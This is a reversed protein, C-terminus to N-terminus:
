APPRGAFRAPCAPPPDPDRYWIMVVPPTRADRARCEWPGASAPCWARLIDMSLRHCGKGQKRGCPRRCLPAGAPVPGAREPPVRGRARGSARVASRNGAPGPARRKAHEQRGVVLSIPSLMGRGTRIAGEMRDASKARQALLHARDVRGPRVVDVDVHHVAVEHGVQGDPGVTTPASRGCLPCATRRGGSSRAPRDTCARAKASAPASMMVTCASAPGCRWRVTCSIRDSPLFAPTDSLGPVGTSATSSRM